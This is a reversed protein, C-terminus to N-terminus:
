TLFKQILSDITVDNLVEEYNGIQCPSTTNLDMNYRFNNNKQQKSLNFMNLWLPQITINADEHLPTKLLDKLAYM